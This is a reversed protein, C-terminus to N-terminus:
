SLPEYEDPDFSAVITDIADPISSNPICEDLREVDEDTLERGAWAELQHITLTIGHERM